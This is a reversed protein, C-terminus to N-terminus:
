PTKKGDSEVHVVKKFFASHMAVGLLTIFLSYHQLDLIRIYITM